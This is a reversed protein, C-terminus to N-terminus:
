SLSVDVADLAPRGVTAVSWFDGSYGSTGHHLGLLKGNGDVWPGGSDGDDTRNNKMDAQYLVDGTRKTNNCTDTVYGSTRGYFEVGVTGGDSVSDGDDTQGVKDALGAFNWAGSINPLQSVTGLPDVNFDGTLTYSVTDTFEDDKHFRGLEDGAYEVTDAGETVHAATLILKESSNADYGIMCITGNGATETPDVVSYGGKIAEERTKLPKEEVVTPVRKYNNPV